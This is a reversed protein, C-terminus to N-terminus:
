AAAFLIYEWISDVTFQIWYGQVEDTHAAGHDISTYQDPKTLKFCVWEGDFVEKAWRALSTNNMISFQTGVFKVVTEERAQPMTSHTVEVTHKMAM